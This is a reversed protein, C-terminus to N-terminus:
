PPVQGTVCTIGSVEAYRTTDNCPALGGAINRTAQERWYVRFNTGAQGQYDQVFIEYRVNPHSAPGSQFMTEITRLPQGPWPRIVNNRLVVTIGPPDPIPAQTGPTEPTMFVFAHERTVARVNEIRITGVPAETGGFVAGAHIDGGRITLDVDQYDGSQVAAEWYFVQAADVRYALGDITMRNVPYNWVAAQYVHWVRFDKVVSEPMSPLDYGDTGLHWVTFGAASGGYVENGRFELLPQRQPTVSSTEGENAMDAGRFRPNRTTFKAAPVFFKFGPGAVIQQAPNRCDSAVNNVFRNNFGAGWFCEAGSGPTPTDSGTERANVDGRVVAVFNSDFLNETESGDEIAIGAGTLEAGGFVVNGRILGYHSGHIAIPWKLSDNVANGVLEFQYGSNSPNPPGWLHHIHLPYRGLHNSVPDLPKARTRGLDRFQVYAIRVDARHTYATHGRTGNADESRIIVNRTLNGLHPLLKTGDGLVTPTGDADRAGRHDYRLPPSVTVFRGDASIQDIRTRDVRLEYAANFWDNVGVQRTDPLFVEDGVRWGSVEHELQIVTQGALPEV